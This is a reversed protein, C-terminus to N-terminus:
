TTVSPEAGYGIMTPDDGALRPSPRLRFVRELEAVVERGQKKATSVFSRVRCFARAGDVCRFGGGVKQQVRIMRLDREALNNTFPVRLEHMFRLVEPKCRELRLVLNLSPARAAKGARRNVGGGGSEGAVPGARHPNAERGRRLVEDYRGEYALLRERDVRRDNASRVREVEAKIELLLGKMAGAWERQGPEEDIFFQLERLIHANCVAHRARSYQWYEAWCDHVLAGRFRRLIGIEDMARAGRRPHCGYHTLRATAAVHVYHLRGAVRLGTEDVNLTAARSLRDKLELETDILKEAGEQAMRYLTAQSVRCGFLDRLLESTRQYPLLQYSMLYVARARVGPGYQVPAAVGEPFVGKTWHGCTRCKKTLARHEVVKLKVPPLDFVQRRECRSLKAETLSTGCGRCRQPAHVSIEDPRSVQKLTAGPHHPQGGVQKEGSQRLSRTKKRVSPPDSSPPRSSNTSNKALRAELEQVRRHAVFSDHRENGLEVELRAIRAQLQEVHALLTAVTHQLEHPTPPEWVAYRGFAQEFLRIVAAPGERWADFITRHDVLPNMFHSAGEVNIVCM